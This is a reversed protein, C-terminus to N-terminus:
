GPPPQVDLTAITWTAQARTATVLIRSRGLPGSLVFSLRARGNEDNRGSVRMQGDVSDPMVAIPQGIRAAVGADAAVLRLIAKFDRAETISLPPPPPPPAPPAPPVGPGVLPSPSPPSPPSHPSPPSPPSPPSHPSEPSPPSPSPPPVSLRSVEALWTRVAPDVPRVEGNERYAESIDGRADVRADYERVKDLGTATIRRYDGPRLTGDTSSEIVLGPTQYRSPDLQTALVVGSVLLMAIGLPVWRGGRTPPRSLLRTIRNMLSGGHAALLLRPLPHRHRELEALAEALAIADGCAAVALDDCAHEREQRIRRGLWWAGPHFFLLAEAVGQLGNWLWDLRRIHALEHALLAEVQERPLRTLLSLPLWIVPRLLRATFPALVDDALRVAVKRSIRLARQLADARQQWQPPLPQFRHRELSGVLRWGGLQRLLMVAVGLLWLLSLAAALGSSQQVFVGPMAGIAPATMAPLISANVDTAPQTWFRAFSVVPVAVMALLFALGVTHRLAAGHRALLRLALGAMVALLAGQWLSHLLALALAPAIGFQANWLLEM